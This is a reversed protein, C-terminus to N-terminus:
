KMSSLNRGAKGEERLIESKATKNKKGQKGVFDGESKKVKQRL